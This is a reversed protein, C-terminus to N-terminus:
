TISINRRSTREKALEVHLVVMEKEKTTLINNLSSV